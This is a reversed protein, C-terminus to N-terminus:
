TQYLGMTLQIFHKSIYLGYFTTLFFSTEVFHVVNFFNNM